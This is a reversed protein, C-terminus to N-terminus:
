RLLERLARYAEAAREVGGLHFAVTVAPPAVEAPDPCWGGWACSEGTQTGPLLHSHYHWTTVHGRRCVIVIM